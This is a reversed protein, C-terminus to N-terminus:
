TSLGNVIDQFLGNLEGGVLGLVIIVVISILVVILAYEILGQGEEKEHKELIASKRPRLVLNEIM